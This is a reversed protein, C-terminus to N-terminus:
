TQASRSTVLGALEQGWRRARDEEGDALPGKTDTVAFHEARAVLTAGHRKLLKEETRAAHDIKVLLKPHNLRTDFAAAPVDAPLQARDLWEHLGMATDTIQAGYQKVAGQRTSPRPMGLVHTPGGVVVLRVDPGIQTPAEHAAAVDVTLHASLGGAVALAIKEADGFVSEYVVLADSM